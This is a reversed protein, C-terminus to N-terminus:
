QCNKSTSIAYLNYLKYKRKEVLNNEIANIFTESQHVGDFAIYKYFNM